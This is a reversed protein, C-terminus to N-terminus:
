NIEHVIREIILDSPSSDYYYDNDATPKSVSIIEGDKYFIRYPYANTEITEIHRFTSLNYVEISKNNSCAAYVLSGSTNILFDSFKLNGRPLGNVYAISNDFINGLPATIFKKSNPIITYNTSTAYESDWPDKYKRDIMIGNADYTYFSIEDSNVSFLETNTNPLIQLRRDDDGYWTLKSVIEKTSRRTVIVPEDSTTTSAFILDDKIVASVVSFPSIKIQEILDFSNADYIFLWGDNRPVLLELQQGNKNLTCFGIGTNLEFDTEEKTKYNYFKIKGVAKNIFILRDHETVFIVDDSPFNIMPIDRVYERTNSWVNKMYYQDESESFIGQVEYSVRSSYPVNTDTYSLEDSSNIETINTSNNNIDYIGKEGVARIVRYYAISDNNAKWKLQVHNDKIVLEELFVSTNEGKLKIDSSDSDCSNLCIMIFSLLVYISKKM